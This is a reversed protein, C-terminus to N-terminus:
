KEGELLEQLVQIAYRERDRFCADLTPNSTTAQNLLYDQHVSIAEIIAQKSISNNVKEELEQKQKHQKKNIEILEEKDAYIRDIETQINNCQKVREWLENDREEYRQIMQKREELLRHIAECERRAQPVMNEKGIQYYFLKEELAELDERTVINGM